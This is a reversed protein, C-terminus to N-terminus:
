KAKTIVTAYVSLGPRLEIDSHSDLRILVPVRQVVKTFNGSANDPPLLSFRAGTGGSLSDVHGTFTRGPFADVEIKAPQGVRLDALQDEKYNAVVWTDDLSVLAMLPREPSVLQGVEVNRRSVVGEVEARVGAYSRNLMAQDLAAQTQDVRAQALEVQAAQAQVRQPGSQAAILRGRAAQVTGDSNGLNSLAGALRARTLALKAEAQEVATQRADLNSQSLAGTQVLRATRELETKALARNAEAAAIDANAQDIAAKTTGSVAAAQTIGGKAVLMNSDVESTTVALQTQMAHLQARAAAVDARAAALKADLDHADLEVLLDGVKVRQNDQVLVKVVQGTIRPAVNAVHGEIQADDTSERGHNVAYTIAAAGGAILALTPLVILAKRKKPKAEEVVVPSEHGDARHLTKPAQEATMSTMRASGAPVTGPDSDEPIM